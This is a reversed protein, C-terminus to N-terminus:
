KTMDLFSGWMAWSSVSSMHTSWYGSMNVYLRGGQWLTGSLRLSYKGGHGIVFYINHFIIVKEMVRLVMQVMAFNVMFEIQFLM